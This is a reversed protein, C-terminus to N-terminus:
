PSPEGTICQFIWLIERTLLSQVMCQRQKGHLLSLKIQGQSKQYCCTTNQDQEVKKRKDGAEQESLLEKPFQGREHPKEQNSEIGEVNTQCFDQMQIACKRVQRQEGHKGKEYIQFSARLYGKKNRSYCGAQCPQCFRGAQEENWEDDQQSQQILPFTFRGFRAPPSRYGRIHLHQCTPSRNRHQHEPQKPWRHPYLRDIGQSINKLNGNAIGFFSM